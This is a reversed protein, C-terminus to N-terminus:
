ANKRKRPVAPHGRRKGGEQNNDRWEHNQDNICADRERHLQALDQAYQRDAAATRNRIADPNGSYVLAGREEDLEDKRRDFERDCPNMNDREERAEAETPYDEM